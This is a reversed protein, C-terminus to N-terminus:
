RFSANDQGFRREPPPQGAFKAVLRRFISSKDVASRSRHSQVNAAFRRRPWAM